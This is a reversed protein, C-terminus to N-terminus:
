RAGKRTVRLIYEAVAIAESNTLWLTQQDKDDEDGRTTQIYIGPGGIEGRAERELSGVNLRVKSLQTDGHDYFTKKM